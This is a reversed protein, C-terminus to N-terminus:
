IKRQESSARKTAALCRSRPPIRQKEANLQLSPMMM